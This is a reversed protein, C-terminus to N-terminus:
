GAAGFRLEWVDQDDAAFSETVTRWAHQTYEVTLVGHPMSLYDRIEQEHLPCAAGYVIAAQDDVVDTGVLIVRPKIRCPGVGTLSDLEGGACQPMAYLTTAHRM